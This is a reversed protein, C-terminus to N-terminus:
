FECAATADPGTQRSRAVRKGDVVIECTVTTSTASSSTVSVQYVTRSRERVTLTKSWPLPAGKQLTVDRTGDASFAVDATTADGGVRYQVRHRNSLSQGEGGPHGVLSFWGGVPLVFLAALAPLFLRPNRLRHAARRVVDADGAGHETSM